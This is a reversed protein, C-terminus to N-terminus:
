LCEGLDDVAWDDPLPDNPLYVDGAHAAACSGSDSATSAEEQEEAEPVNSRWMEEEGFSCGVHSAAFTREVVLIEGDSTVGAVEAVVLEKKLKEREINRNM